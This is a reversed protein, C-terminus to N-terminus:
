SSENGNFKDKEERTPSQRGREIEYRADSRGNPLLKNSKQNFFVTLFGDFDFYSM